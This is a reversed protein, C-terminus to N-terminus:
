ISNQITSILSTRQCFTESFSNLDHGCTCESTFFHFISVSNNQFLKTLHCVLKSRSLFLIVKSLHYKNLINIKPSYDARVKENSQKRNIVSVQCNTKQAESIGSTCLSQKTVKVEEGRNRLKSM